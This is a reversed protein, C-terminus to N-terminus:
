SLVKLSWPRSGFRAYVGERMEDILIIGDAFLICWPVERQIHHTLLDMELAFLFPILSSGQHLGMVVLFHDLDGGLTRVRTKAGDYINKISKIHAVPVGRAELYKWLVERSVYNYAKQLDIFEMHLDRKSKRYQEMLIRVIHIAETTSREPM